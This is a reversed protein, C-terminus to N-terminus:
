FTYIPKAGELWQRGTAKYRKQMLQAWQDVLDALMYKLGRFV